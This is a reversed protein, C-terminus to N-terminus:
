QTCREEEAIRITHKERYEQLRKCEAQRFLEAAKLATQIQDLVHSPLDCIRGRLRLPYSSQEDLSGKKPTRKAM